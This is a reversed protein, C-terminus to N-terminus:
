AAEVDDGDEFLATLAGPQPRVDTFQLGKGMAALARLLVLATVNEGREIESIRQRTVGAKAALDSQTMRMALREERLAQGLEQTNFIGTRM